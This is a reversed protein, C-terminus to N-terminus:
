PKSARNKVIRNRIRLQLNQSLPVDNTRNRYNYAAYDSILIKDEVNDVDLKIGKSELEKKAAKVVTLFYEDRLSHTIGLDTKFINLVVDM